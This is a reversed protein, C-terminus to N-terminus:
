RSQLQWEIGQREARRPAVRGRKRSLGCGLRRVRCCGKYSGRGITATAGKGDSLDSLFSVVASAIVESLSADSRLFTSRTLGPPEPTLLFRFGAGDVLRLPSSAEATALLMIVSSTVAAMAAGLAAAEPQAELGGEPTVAVLGRAVLSQLGGGVLPDEVGTVAPLGLEAALISPSAGEATTLFLLELPTFANTAVM